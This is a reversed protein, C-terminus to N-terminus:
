WRTAKNPQDCPPLVTSALESLSCIMGGGLTVGSMAM